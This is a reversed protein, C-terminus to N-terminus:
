KGNNNGGVISLKSFLGALEEKERKIQKASKNSNRININKQNKLDQRSIKIIKKMINEEKSEGAAHM